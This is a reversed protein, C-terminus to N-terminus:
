CKNSDQALWNSLAIPSVIHHNSWVSKPADGVLYSKLVGRYRGVNIYPELGRLHSKMEIAIRGSMFRTRVIDSTASDKPRTRVPEPLRGQMAERMPRKNSKATEPITLMFGVLRLDFFPHRAILPIRLREYGEFVAPIWPALLQSHTSGTDAEQITTWGTEWRHILQAREVFEANIYEPFPPFSPAKGLSHKISSRMGLGRFSGTRRIHGYVETAFRAVDRDVLLKLYYSSSRQFLADGGHGTLLVRAGDNAVQQLRDHHVAKDASGYPECTALVSDSFREFLNYDDVAQSFIPIGLHSAVMEAFYGEVDDPLLRNCTGTYAAISHGCDRASAAVSTSDLGGSMEIAVPGNGVRDSVANQFLEQFREGYDLDKKYRVPESIPLSWYQLMHLRDNHLKLCTSPPLRRINQYISLGPHQFHGFLLFDGVAEEDLSTSIAPHELLAAIDSAFIFLRDVKAYFFPRVGFHDRACVLTRQPSNWLAFSFDGILYDLFTEGFARYARLILESDPADPRGGCGANRIRRILESRGDIRADATIWTDGDLTFPQNVEDSPDSVHLACHGLAISGKVWHHTSDPGRHAMASTMREILGPEVPKGDFHIIGAIGSM